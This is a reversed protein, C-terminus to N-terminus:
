ILGRWHTAVMQSLRLGPPIRWSFAHWNRELIRVCNANWNLPKATQIKDSFYLRSDYGDRSTPCLLADANSPICGEPLKFDPILFFTVGGEDCAQVNPFLDKLETIQEQAFNM